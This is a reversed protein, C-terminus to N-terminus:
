SRQRQRTAAETLQWTLPPIVLELVGLAIFLSHPWGHVAVSVIRALGGVFLAALLVYFTHRRNLLDQSCWLLTLGFVLFLATYFRHESDISANVEMTDPLWSHGLAIHTMSVLSIFLGGSVSLIKLAKEM